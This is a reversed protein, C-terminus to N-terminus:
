PTPRDTMPMSGPNFRGAPAAASRVVARYRKDSRVGSSDLRPQRRRGPHLDGAGDSVGLPTSLDDGSSRILAVAVIVVALWAAPFPVLWATWPVIAFVFWIVDPRLTMAGPLFVSFGHADLTPSAVISALGFRALGNRGGRLLAVGIAGVGVLLVVATPAYQTLSVGRLTPYRDLTEEFYGLALAWEGRVALWDIPDDRHDAARNARHRTRGGQLPTGPTGLAPDRVAVQLRRRRGIGGRVPLRARLVSFRIRVCERGLARRRLGALGRARRDVSGPRRDLPSRDPRRGGVDGAMRGGRSAPSAPRPGRITSSHFTPLRVPQPGCRAGDHASGRSIGCSGGAHQRGRRSVHHLDRMPLHTVEGLDYVVWTVVSALAVLVVPDRSRRRAGRVVLGAAAGLVLVDVAQPSVPGLHHHTALRSAAIWGGCLILGVLGTLLWRSWGKAALRDMLLWGPGAGALVLLEVAPYSLGRYRHMSTTISLVPLLLIALALALALVWSWREGSFRRVADSM